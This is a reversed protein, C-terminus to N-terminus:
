KGLLSLCVKGCNYLNPNFRVTGGGTTVLLVKPPVHPYDHPIYADFEFCAGCYPSDMSEPFMLMKMLCPQSCNVGSFITVNYPLSERMTALETFVKKYWTSPLHNVTKMENIFLHSTFMEEPMVVKSEGNDNNHNQDENDKKEKENHFSQASIQDISHAICPSPALSLTSVDGLLSTKISKTAHISNDDRSYWTQRKKIDNMSTSSSSSSSSSSTTSFTNHLDHMGGHEDEASLSLALLQDNRRNIVCKLKDIVLAEHPETYLELKNFQLKSPLNVLAPPISPIHQTPQPLIQLIDIISEYFDLNNLFEEPTISISVFRNLIFFISDILFFDILQSASCSSNKTISSINDGGVLESEYCQVIISDVLSRMEQIVSASSSGPKSDKLPQHQNIFGTSYGTGYGSKSSKTDNYIVVGFSHLHNLSLDMFLESVDIQYLKVIDIIRKINGQHNFAMVKSINPMMSSINNNIIGINNIIRNKTRSLISRTLTNPMLGSMTTTIPVIIDTTSTILTAAAVAATDNNTITTSTDSTAPCTTTIDNDDVEPFTNVVSNKAIEILDVVIQTIDTCLNWNYKILQPHYNFLLNYKHNPYIFHSRLEFRPPANPFYPENDPFYIDALLVKNNVHIILNASYFNPQIDVHCYKNLQKYVKYVTLKTISALEESLNGTYQLSYMMTPEIGNYKMNENDVVYLDNDNDDDDDDDDDYQYEYEYDDDDVPYDCDNNNQDHGDDNDNKDKVYDENM